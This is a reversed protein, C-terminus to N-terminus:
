RDPPQALAGSAARARAFLATEARPDLVLPKLAGDSSGPQARTMRRALRQRVLEVARRPEQSRRTTPSRRSSRACTASRSRGRAAPRAVGQAPRRDIAPPPILEEVVKGDSRAPSTSCSASSAGVSCSTPTAACLETLHTAIVARPTSSPAAPPRPATRARSPSLWKAPLGFTPETTPRARCRRRPLHRIPDIALLRHAHGRGGRHPVGNLLLRYGGPRLRLDDRIALPPVILGLDSALQKRM